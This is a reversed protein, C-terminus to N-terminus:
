SDAARLVDRCCARVRPSRHRQLSLAHLQALYHPMLPHYRADRGSREYTEREDAQFKRGVIRLLSCLADVDDDTTGVLDFSDTDPDAHLLSNVCFCVIRSQVLGALFLHGVFTVTATWRGRVKRVWREQEHRDTRVEDAVSLAEGPMRGARRMTQGELARGLALIDRLLAPSSEFETQCLRVLSKRFSLTHAISEERERESSFPGRVHASEDSRQTSWYLGPARGARADGVENRVEFRRVFGRAWQPSLPDVAACLRALLSQLRGHRLAVEFVVTALNELMSQATVHVRGLREVLADLREPTLAECERWISHVVAGEDTGPIFVPCVGSDNEEELDVHDEDEAGNNPLRDEGENEGGYRGLIFGDEEEGQEETGPPIPFVAGEDAGEGDNPIPFQAIEGGYRGLIYGDEEEGQEETGHPIEMGEGENEGQEEGGNPIPFQAIEGGYHGLIYGDEEEGQEEGGHPIEMGEGENGEAVGRGESDAGAHTPRTLRWFPIYLIGGRHRARSVDATSTAPTANSPAASGGVDGGVGAVSGGPVQAVDSPAPLAPPPATAGSAGSHRLWPGPVYTLPEM